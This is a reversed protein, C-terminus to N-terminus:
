ESRSDGYGKEVGRQFQQKIVGMKVVGDLVTVSRILQLGNGMLREEITSESMTSGYAVDGHFGPSM